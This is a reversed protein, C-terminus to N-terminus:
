DDTQDGYYFALAVESPLNLDHEVEIDFSYILADEDLALDALAFDSPDFSSYIVATTKFLPM